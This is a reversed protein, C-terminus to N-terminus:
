HFSAGPGDRRQLRLGGVVVNGCYGAKEGNAEIRQLAPPLLGAGATGRGIARSLFLPIINKQAPVCYLGVMVDVDHIRAGHRM